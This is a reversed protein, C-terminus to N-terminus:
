HFNTLSMGFSHHRRDDLSEIMNAFLGVSEMDNRFANLLDRANDGLLYRGRPLKSVSDLTSQLKAVDGTLVAHDLTKLTQRDSPSLLRRPDDVQADLFTQAKQLDQKSLAAQQLALRAKEQQGNETTGKASPIPAEQPDFM